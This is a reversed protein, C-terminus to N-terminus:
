RYREIGLERAVDWLDESYDNEPLLFDDEPRRPKIARERPARPQRVKRERKQKPPKPQKPERPKLERETDVVELTAFRFVCNTCKRKRRLGRETMRTDYVETRHNCQLCNM